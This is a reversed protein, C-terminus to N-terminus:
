VNYCLSKKKGALVKNVISQVDSMAQSRILRTWIVSLNYREGGRNLSPRYARIHVGLSGHLELVIILSFVVYTFDIISCYNISVLYINIPM